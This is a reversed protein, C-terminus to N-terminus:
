RHTQAADASWDAIFGREIYPAIKEYERLVRARSFPHLHWDQKPVGFWNVAVLMKEVEPWHRQLTMLYRRSSCLKGLAILSRINSLGFRADLIPLSFIVNEGTNTAKDETLVIDAPVGADVMQRKIADAEPERDGLTAGGSVIAHRYYGENWLRAAEAVFERVGHRTGFVFLLDAPALNTEIFHERNIREVLDLDVDHSHEPDSM